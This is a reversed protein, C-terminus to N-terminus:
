QAGHNRQVGETVPSSHFFSLLYADDGFGQDFPEALLRDVERGALANLLWLGGAGLLVTALLRTM